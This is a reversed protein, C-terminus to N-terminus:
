FAFHFLRFTENLYAECVVFYLERHALLKEGLDPQLYNNINHQGDNWCKPSWPLLFVLLELGAQAVSYSGKLFFSDISIVIITITILFFELCTNQM